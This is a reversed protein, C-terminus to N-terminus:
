LESELAEAALRGSLAAGEITAPLGTNTWDGAVYLGPIDTKASPRLKINETTFLPTANRERIVRGHMYNVKKLQPLCSNLEQQMLDLIETNGLKEIEEAASITCSLSFPYKGKEEKLIKSRNFCWQTKTDTMATIEPLDIYKDYWLYASIISSYDMNQLINDLSDSFQAKILLIKRIRNPSLSFIVKDFEYNSKKTVIHFKNGIKEVSQVAESLQLSGGKTTLYSDIPEILKNIAVNPLLLKSEFSNGLFAKKMVSILLSAPAQHISANMVALILPEWFYNIAESTQKQRSLYEFCSLSSSKNSLLLKSFLKIIHYKSFTNLKDFGLLGVLTGYKGKFIKQELQAIPAGPSTFAISLKDPIYIYKETGLIKCINLFETYAGMFAHQGNDIFEESKSDFFSRAKGGVSDTAEFLTIKHNKKASHLAASTGSIGAGVIAINM